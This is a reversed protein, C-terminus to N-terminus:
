GLENKAEKTLYPQIFTRVKLQSAHELFCTSVANESEGGEKVLNNILNCFNKIQKETAESLLKNSIPGFTLFVSHTSFNSNEYMFAEGGDWEAEFSPFIRILKEVLEIPKTM